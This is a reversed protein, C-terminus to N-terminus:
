LCPGMRLQMMMFCHYHHLILRLSPPEHIEKQCLATTLEPLDKNSELDSEGSNLYFAFQIKKKLGSSAVFLMCEKGFKILVHM